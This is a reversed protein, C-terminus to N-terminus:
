TKYQGLKEQGEIVIKTKLAVHNELQIEKDARKMAREYNRKGGMWIVPNLITMLHDDLEEWKKQNHLKWLKRQDKDALGDYNGNIRFVLCDISSNLRQIERDKKRLLNKYLAIQKDKM